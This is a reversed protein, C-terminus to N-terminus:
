SAGGSPYCNIDVDAEGWRRRSSGWVSSAEGLAYHADRAEIGRVVEGFGAPDEATDGNTFLDVVDGVVVRRGAVHERDGLRDGVSVGLVVLVVLGGVTTVEVRRWVKGGSILRAVESWGSGGATGCELRSSKDM